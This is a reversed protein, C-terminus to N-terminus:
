EWEKPNFKEFIPAAGEKETEILNEYQSITWYFRPGKYRKFGAEKRDEFRMAVFDPRGSINVILNKLLFDQWWPITKGEKNLCGALQGRVVQPYNKKLYSVAPPSFSEIGYVGEYTSLVKMVRDVLEAQNGEVVKLEIILPVKGGVRSLVDEFSSITEDSEELPYNQAEQLTIKEIQLKVGCTRKLSADHIVALKKDKTLHVDFEIGFGESIARDFALMSNEPIKPKDHLGRHAYRSNLMTQLIENKKM